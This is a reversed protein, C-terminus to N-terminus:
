MFCLIVTLAIFILILKKSLQSLNFESIKRRIYFKNTFWIAFPIFFLATGVGAIVDSLFHAQLAIRSYCVLVAVLLLLVKAVIIINGKRSALLVFPLTLAMSKAAHGSPFAPTESIQKIAV